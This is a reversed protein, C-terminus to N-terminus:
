EQWTSKDQPRNVLVLLQSLHDLMQNWCQLLEYTKGEFEWCVSQASMPHLRFATWPCNRETNRSPSSKTRMQNCKRHCLVHLTFAGSRLTSNSVHSNHAFFHGGGNESCHEGLRLFRRQRLSPPPPGSWELMAKTLGYSHCLTALLM